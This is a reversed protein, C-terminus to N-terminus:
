GSKTTASKVELRLSFTMREKAENLRSIASLLTLTMERISTDQRPFWNEIENCHPCNSPLHGWREPTMVLRTDCKKCMYEVAIVDSLEILMKNEVTM